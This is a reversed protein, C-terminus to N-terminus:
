LSDNRMRNALETRSRVSLKRYIRTLNAEVTKASIFLEAATEQNSHGSGVLEAIRRETETLDNTSFRLGVRSAEDRAREAWRPVGLEDFANAAATLTQYSRGKQRARRYTQGLALQSRAAEFPCELGPREVIDRLQTVATDTDGRAATLLAQCRAAAIAAEPRGAAGQRRLHGIATEVEDLAGVQLAADAYDVAWLLQELDVMKTRDFIQALERLNGLAAHWDRASMAIFGLQALFGGLWYLLGGTRSQAAAAEALVRAEDLDGAYARVLIRGMSEQLTHDAWAGLRDAEDVVLAAARVKSGRILVLILCIYLTALDGYRGAEVTEAIAERARVESTTDDWTAYFCHSWAAEAPSRVISSHEALQDLERLTENPQGYGWNWEIAQREALAELAIDPRNLAVAERITLEVLRLALRGHGELRHCTSLTLLADVRAAGGRPAMRFAQEAFSRTGSLYHALRSRQLVIQAQQEADEALTSGRDLAAQASLPDGAEVYAGVARLWRPLSTTEPPTALAAAELLEGALQPAGRGRSIVAARDLEDAVDRDPATAAKAHHRAREVPDDLSQALLRHAHRRETSKAAEYIASALLPHTFTITSDVGVAAVDADAATELVSALRDPEVMRQLHTLTLRGAASALLLVSHAEQSLRAVRESLLEALSSPVPLVLDHGHRAVARHDPVNAHLARAIELALLPNGGSARAVGASEPPTWRPGVRERLLQGIAGDELPRLVYDRKPEALCRILDTGTQPDPRTAVVVSLRKPDTSLRRLAFGLTGLSASDLWQLDDLLLAVPESQCLRTLLGRIALPVALPDVSEGAPETQYVAVALAHRLPESLGSDSGPPCQAILEALGAFPLGREFETPTVSLVLRGQSQAINAAVGLLSSKGAGPSGTFVASGGGALVDRIIQEAGERGFLKL